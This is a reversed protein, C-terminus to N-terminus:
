NRRVRREKPLFNSILKKDQSIKGTGIIDEYEDSSLVVVFGKMNFYKEEQEKTLEINDGFFWKEEQEKTLYIKNESIQNQLIHLMDLSLRTGDELEKGFYLGVGEVSFQNILVSLEERSLSGSFARIAEKGLKSLLFPIKKIGLYSIKDLVKKKKTNDLINFITM